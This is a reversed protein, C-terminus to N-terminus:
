DVRNKEEDYYYTQFRPLPRITTCTGAQKKEQQEEDFASVVM